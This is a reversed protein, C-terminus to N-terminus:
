GSWTHQDGRPEPGNEGEEEEQLNHASAFGGLALATLIGGVVKLILPPAEEGRGRDGGV